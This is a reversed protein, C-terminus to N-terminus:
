GHIRLGEILKTLQGFDRQEIQAVTELSEKARDLSKNLYENAGHLGLIKPYTAKEAVLDKQPTKGLQDFSATIDLIDDRIQFALGLDRGAQGLSSLVISSVQSIIGAALFPFVLLQGTKNRHIEELETQSLDQGEGAMDLAQGAVMGRSGAALALHEIVSLLSPAPFDAQAILAFPDLFLSDGALIAGAEGYVKHNTLRGRRFDDNDMAPLDDHILSATHIMELAAAIKFDGKVVQGSLAQRLYLYLLPRIRKGGGDLSYLLSENLVPSPGVEYFAQWEAEMAQILEDKTM